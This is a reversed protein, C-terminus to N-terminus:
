YSFTSLVFHITLQKRKWLLFFNKGCHQNRIKWLGDHAEAMLQQLSICAVQMCKYCAAHLVDCLFKRRLKKHPNQMYNWWIAGLKHMHLHQMARPRYQVKVLCWVCRWNAFNLTCTCIYPFSTCRMLICAILPIRVM